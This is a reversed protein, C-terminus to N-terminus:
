SGLSVGKCLSRWHENVSVLVNFVISFTTHRHRTCCKHALERATQGQVDSRAEEDGGKGTGLCGHQSRAIRCDSEKMLPRPQAAMQGCFENAATDKAIEDTFM